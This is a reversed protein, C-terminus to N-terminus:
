LVCIKRNNRTLMFNQVPPINEHQRRTTEELQTTKACYAHWCWGSLWQFFRRRTVFDHFSAGSKSTIDFDNLISMDAGLVLLKQKKVLFRFFTRRPVSIESKEDLLYSYVVERYCIRIRSWIKTKPAHFPLLYEDLRRSNTSDGSKSQNKKDTPTKKHFDSMIPFPGFEVFRLM